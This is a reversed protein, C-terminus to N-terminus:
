LRQRQIVELRSPRLRHKDLFSLYNRASARPTRTASCSCRGGGTRGGRCGRRGGGAPSSRRPEGPEGLQLLSPQRGDAAAGAAAQGLARAATLTVCGYLNGDFGTCMAIRVSYRGWPLGEAATYTTANTEWHGTSLVRQRLGGVVSVRTGDRAPTWGPAEVMRGGSVPPDNGVCLTMIMVRLLQGFCVLTAVRLTIDTVAASSLGVARALFPVSVSVALSAWVRWALPTRLLRLDNAVGWLLGPENALEARLSAEAITPRTTAGRFAQSLVVALAM